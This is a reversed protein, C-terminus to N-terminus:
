KLLLRVAGGDRVVYHKSFQRVGDRHTRSVHGLLTQAYDEDSVRKGYHLLQRRLKEMERLWKEM